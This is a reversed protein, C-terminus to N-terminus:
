QLYTNVSISVLDNMEFNVYCLVGSRSKSWIMVYPLVITLYLFISFRLSWKWLIYIVRKLFNFRCNWLCGCLLFVLDCLSSNHIYITFTRDDGASVSLNLTFIRLWVLLVFTRWKKDWRRRVVYWWEWAQVKPILYFRQKWVCIVVGAVFIYIKLIYILSFLIYLSVRSTQGKVSISTPANFLHNKLLVRSKETLGHAPLRHQVQYTSTKSRNAARLRTNRRIGCCLQVQRWWSALAYSWFIFSPDHLLM